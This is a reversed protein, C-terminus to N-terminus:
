LRLWCIRIPHSVQEVSPTRHKVGYVQVFVGMGVFSSSYIITKKENEKEREKESNSHSLKINYMRLRNMKKFIKNKLAILIGKM